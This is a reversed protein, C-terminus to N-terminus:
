KEEKFASPFHKRAINEVQPYKIGSSVSYYEMAEKISGHRIIYIKDWHSSDHKHNESFLIECTLDSEGVIKGIKKVVVDGLQVCWIKEIKTM